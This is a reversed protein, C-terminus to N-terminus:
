NIGLLQNYRDPEAEKMAVLGVMDKKKWDSVTWKTRDEAGAAEGPAKGAHPQLTGPKPIDALASIALAGSAKAMPRWKQEAQQATIRGDAIAESIAKESDAAVKDAEAKEIAELKTTAEALQAKIKRVEEAVQADTPNGPMALAQITLLMTEPQQTTPQHAERKTGPVQYQNYTALLHPPLAAVIQLVPDIIGTAFGMQVGEEALIYTTRAMMGRVEKDQLGTGDVYVKALVAKTQELTEGWQKFDEATGEACGVPDHIMLMSNSCMLRKSGAMFIISGMSAALGDCITTVEGTHQKLLNHIALGDYFDGGPSHIHVELPMGDLAQLQYMLANVDIRQKWWEDNPQAVDGYLYLKAPGGYAQPRQITLPRLTGPM